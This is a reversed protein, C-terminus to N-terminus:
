ESLLDSTSVENRLPEGAVYRGVNDLFLAAIRESARPSWGSDHPTLVCNPLTWLPSDDPLPEQSVVDLTAGRIRGAQLAEILAPEDVVGGRAVNILVATERMAELEPAAILHRTDDTMPVSLVVYDSEALLQHLESPQFVRDVHPSEYASRRMGVVRMGFAHAVRAAAEGIGGLGVIGLTKSTLDDSILLNWERAAQQAQHRAVQREWHLVYTFIYQAIPEAHLGSGNTLRIGREILVRFVPNDVGAGPSQMWKLTPSGFHPGLAGMLKSAVGAASSFVLVEIGDPDGSFVGDFDVTVLESQPALEHLRGGLHPVLDSSACIKM